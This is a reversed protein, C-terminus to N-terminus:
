ALVYSTKVSTYFEVAYRGQERPGYSSAKRGGFPVHYDVGATAVNVMVMGAESNRQFHTAHKLSTTFIGSSLGYPTDNAVALAEEYDRVRIIAAVPGFIEERAIRMANDVGVFL